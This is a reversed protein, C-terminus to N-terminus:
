SAGSIGMGVWADVMTRRTMGSSLEQRKLAKLKAKRPPISLMCSSRETIAWAIWAFLALYVATTSSLSGSFYQRHICVWSAQPPPISNPVNEM